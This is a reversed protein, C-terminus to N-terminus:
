KLGIKKLLKSWLLATKEENILNRYKRALNSLKIRKKDDKILEDIASTLMKENQPPVLIVYGKLGSEIISLGNPCDFSISPMGMLLAELLVMGYSEVLSPLIFIEHKNMIAPVNQTAEHLFVREGLGQLKILDHLNQKEGGDGYIHLQWDKEKINAFSKILIDFGKDKVLRGLALIKKNRPFPAIESYFEKRSLNNVTIVPINLKPKYFKEDMKTITVLADAKQYVELVRNQWFLKHQHCIGAHDMIILKFDKSINKRAKLLIYSEEVSMSIILDPNEENIVQTMFDGMEKVTVRISRYPHNYVKFKTDIRIPQVDLDSSSSPFLFFVEHGQKYLLDALAISVTEAAGILNKFLLLGIKM